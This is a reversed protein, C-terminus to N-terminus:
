LHKLAEVCKRLRATARAKMSDVSARTIGLSSAISEPKEGDIMLRVFVQKTREHVSDDSLFQQLAIEYISERWSKVDDGRCAEQVTLQAAARGKIKRERERAALEKLAKNRVVGTLYNHFHGNEKPNYRYKPLAKALSVFVEQIVDDADVSPFRAQLFSRMMPEYRAHFEAWRVHQTGSAVDRLLTTSTEPANAM